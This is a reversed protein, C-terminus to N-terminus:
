ISPKQIFCFYHTRLFPVALLLRYLFPSIPAVRRGIPPALTARHFSLRCGRFLQQIERRGVGRVNPNQPNSYFFDYWIFFAGPRMIRVIESAITGRVTEDLVSTFVMSQLVLDFHGSPFPLEAANGEVFSVNSNLRRGLSLSKRFLDVGFCNAPEAGFDILRRLQGGSGCGVDLITLDKLSAMGARRFFRLLHEQREQLNYLGYLDFPGSGPEKRHRFVERIRAAECSVLASQTKSDTLAM